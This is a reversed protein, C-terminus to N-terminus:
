FESLNIKNKAKLRYNYWDGYGRAGCYVWVFPAAFFCTVISFILLWFGKVYMEKTFYWFPGLIFVMWNWGATKSESSMKLRRQNKRGFKSTAPRFARNTKTCVPYGSTERQYPRISQITLLNRTHVVPVRNRGTHGTKETM